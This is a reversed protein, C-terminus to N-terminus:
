SSLLDRMDFDMFIKASHRNMTMNMQVVPNKVPATAFCFTLIPKIPGKVPPLADM